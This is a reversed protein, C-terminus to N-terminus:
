KKCIKYVANSKPKNLLPRHYLIRTDGSNLLSFKETHTAPKKQGEVGPDCEFKIIFTKTQDAVSETINMAKCAEDGVEYGTANVDLRQGEFDIGCWSAVLPTPMGQQANASYMTALTIVAAISTRSFM